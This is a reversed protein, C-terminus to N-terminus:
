GKKQFLYLNELPGHEYLRSNAKKKYLSKPGNVKSNPKRDRDAAEGSRRKTEEEISLPSASDQEPTGYVTTTGHSRPSSDLNPHEGSRHPEEVVTPNNGYWGKNKLEYDPVNNIIKGTNEGGKEDSEPTTLSFGMDNPSLPNNRKRRVYVHDPHLADDLDKERMDRGFFPLSVDQGM